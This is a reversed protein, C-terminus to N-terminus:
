NAKKSLEKKTDVQKKREVEIDLEKAKYKSAWEIEL